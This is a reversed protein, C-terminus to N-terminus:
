RGTTCLCVVVFLFFAYRANCIVVRFLCFNGGGVRIARRANVGSERAQLAFERAHSICLVAVKRVRNDLLARRRACGHASAYFYSTLAGDEWAGLVSVSVRAEEGFSVVMVIRAIAVTRLILFCRVCAVVGKIRLRRALAARQAAELVDRELCLDRDTVGQM